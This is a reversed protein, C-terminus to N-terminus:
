KLWVLKQATLHRGGRPLTKLTLQSVVRNRGGRKAEYLAADARELLVDPGCVRDWTASGVSVTVRISAAKWPVAMRDVAGRLREAVLEAIAADAGPLLVGFEEGGLRGAVDLTRTNRRLQDALALLVADGGAHGFEDNIAKFHDADVMLISLARGERRARDFERELETMFHRRGALGTLDDYAALRRMEEMLQANRVATALHGTTAHVLPVADYDWPGLAAPRCAVLVGEVGDQGHLLSVLRHRGAADMSAGLPLPSAAPAGLLPRGSGGLLCVEEAFGGPGGRSAVLRPLGDHALYLALAEVAFLDALGEATAEVIADVDIQRSITRSLDDLRALWANSRLVQRFLGARADAEALAEALASAAGRQIPHFGPADPAPEGPQLRLVGEPGDIELGPPDGPALRLQCGPWVAATDERLQDLLDGATVGSRVLVLARRLLELGAESM